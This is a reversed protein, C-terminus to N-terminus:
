GAGLAREGRIAARIGPLLDPPVRRRPVVLALDALVGDLEAELRRCADCAERHAGYAALEEESLDALAAGAALLATADDHMM